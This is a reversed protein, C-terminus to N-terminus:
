WISLGTVIGLMLYKRTGQLLAVLVATMLLAQLLTEMGSLAAWQFHWEAVFFLGIWPWRPRYTPVLRRASFETLVGLGFLCLEGLFYTWVYPGLHLWFGIALLFTWLPSTSGASLHGPQFAWEGRQALNRAYTLHIWSDDLPFGIRDIRASFFLYIAAGLIAAVLLIAADRASPKPPSATSIREMSIGSILSARAPRTRTSKRLRGQPAQPKSSSTSRATAAPSPLCPRKM